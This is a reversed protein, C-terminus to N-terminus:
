HSDHAFPFFFTSKKNQGNLEIEVITSSFKIPCTEHKKIPSGREVIFVSIQKDKKVDLKLHFSRRCANFAISMITVGEEAAEM